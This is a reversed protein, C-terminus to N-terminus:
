KALSETYLAIQVEEWFKPGYKDEFAGEELAEIHDKVLEMLAVLQKKNM